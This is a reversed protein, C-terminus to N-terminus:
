ADKHKWVSPEDIEAAASVLVHVFTLGLECANSPPDHSKTLLTM